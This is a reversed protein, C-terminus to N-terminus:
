HKCDSRGKDKSTTKIQNYGRFDDKFSFMVDKATADILVDMNTVSTTRIVHKTSITFTPVADKSGM